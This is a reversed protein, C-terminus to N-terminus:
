FLNFLAVPNFEYLLELLFTDTLAEKSIVSIVTGALLATVWAYFLGLLIGFVLGLIENTKKILKIKGLKKTIFAAFRLLLLSLLFILVFALINAVTENVKFLKAVSECLLSSILISIVFSATRIVTSIFGNRWGKVACVAIIAILILDALWSM